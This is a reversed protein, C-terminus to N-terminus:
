FAERVLMHIIFTITNPQAKVVQEVLLKNVARFSSLLQTVIRACIGKGPAAALQRKHDMGIIKEIQYAWM